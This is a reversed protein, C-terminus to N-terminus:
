LAYPIMCRELEHGPDISAKGYKLNWLYCFLYSKCNYVQVWSQQWQSLCVGMNYSGEKIAKLGKSNHFKEQRLKDIFVTKYLTKHFQYQNKM